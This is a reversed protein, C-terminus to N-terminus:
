RWAWTSKILMARHIRLKVKWKRQFKHKSSMSWDKLKSKLSSLKRMKRRARSLWNTLKKNRKTSYRSKMRKSRASTQTNRTIKHPRRKRLWLKTKTCSRSSACSKRFWCVSRSKDRMQVTTRALISHSMPLKLWLRRWANKSRRNRNTWTRQTTKRYSWKNRKFPLLASTATRSSWISRWPMNSRNPWSNQWVTLIIRCRM